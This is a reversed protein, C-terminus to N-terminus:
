SVRRDQRPQAHVVKTANVDVADVQMGVLTSIRESVNERVAAAVDPLAAPWIVAIQVVVRVRTGAVHAQARPFNRGVARELGSGIRAVGPVQRAALIAVQEVVRDAISLDGREAPDRRARRDLEQLQRDAIADIGGQAPPRDTTSTTSTEAM